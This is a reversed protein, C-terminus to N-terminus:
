EKKKASKEAGEEAAVEETVLKMARDIPISYVGPLGAMERPSGLLSSDQQDLLSNAKYKKESLSYVKRDMDMATYASFLTKVGLASALVLATSILGVVVIATNNLDDKEVGEEAHPAETVPPAHQSM